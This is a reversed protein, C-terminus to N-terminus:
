SIKLTASFGFFILHRRGIPLPERRFQKRPRNCPLAFRTPLTFLALVISVQTNPEPVGISDAAPSAIQYWHEFPQLDYFDVKGNGDFDFSQNPTEKLYQDMFLAFDGEDARCNNNYDMIFDGCGDAILRLNDFYVNVGVTNEDAPLTGFTSKYLIGFQYISHGAGPVFHFDSLPFTAHFVPFLNNDWQADFPNIKNHDFGTFTFPGVNSNGYMGVSFFREPYRGNAEPDVIEEPAQWPIARM